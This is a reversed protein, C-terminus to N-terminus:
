PTPLGDEYLRPVPHNAQLVGDPDVAARIGKLRLWHEPTYAERVDVPEEHFNLYYRPSAYPELASVVARADAHGQAALEPTAAIAVGFFLFRGELMPLAGAGGAPRGLAGGLQRIEAALLASGSGPGTLALFSELAAEPLETLMCTGSVGPTPGEPDM